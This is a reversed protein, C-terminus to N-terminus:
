PVSVSLGGYHLLFLTLMLTSASLEDITIQEQDSHALALSGPGTTFVTLEPRLHAFIRADSSVEWGVAPRRVEIGADEAALQADAM